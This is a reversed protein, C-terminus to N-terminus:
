PKTITESLNMILSVVQSYAAHEAPELKRDSPYEGFDLLAHAAKPDGQFIARQEELADLLVELEESLPSRSTIAEFASALRKSDDTTSIDQLLQQAFYRSIEVFQVDNLLVLAQLPTNTSERGM